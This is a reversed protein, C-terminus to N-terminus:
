TSFSVYKYVLIIYLGHSQSSAHASTCNTIASLAKFENSMKTHEEM